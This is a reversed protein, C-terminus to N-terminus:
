SAAVASGGKLLLNMFLLYKLLLVKQLKAGHNKEVTVFKNSKVHLLQVRNGFHLPRKLGTKVSQANAEREYVQKRELDRLPSPHHM